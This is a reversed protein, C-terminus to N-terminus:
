EWGLGRVGHRRGLIGISPGPDETDGLRPRRLPERDGRPALLCSSDMIAVKSTTSPTELPRSVSGVHRASTFRGRGALILWSPMFGPKMVMRPGELFSSLSASSSPFLSTSAALVEPMSPHRLICLCNFLLRSSLLRLRLAEPEGFRRREGERDGGFRREGERDGFCREGERERDGRREGERDGRRRQTPIAARGEAPPWRGPSRLANM